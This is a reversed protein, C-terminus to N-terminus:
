KVCNCDSSEISHGVANVARVKYKIMDGPWLNYNPLALDKMAITCSNAQDQGCNPVQIYNSMGSNDRTQVEVIYQLIDTGGNERPPKWALIAGCKGAASACVPPDPKVLIKGQECSWEITDCLHRSGM